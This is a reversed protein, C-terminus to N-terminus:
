FGPKTRVHNNPTALTKAALLEYDARAAEGEKKATAKTAEDRWMESNALLGRAIPLLYSEVHEALLPISAGSELLDAFAVRAPALTARAELRYLKDPLTDVRMTFPAPPNQNPANEEMWYFDPRRIPRNMRWHSVAKQHTLIFNDEIVRPDGVLGSYPEPFAVCDCYITAAVAGTEGAYPHLLSNTGTIQNDISDGAIKVTRYLQNATFATGTTEASGNTVGISITVPADLPISITTTKSNSNALAHMRQLGGNIADLLELRTDATLDNLSKEKLDRMLRNAFAIAKM